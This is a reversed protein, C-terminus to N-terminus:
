QRQFRRHAHGGLRPRHLRQYHLRRFRGHRARRWAGHHQPRRLRQLEGSRQRLPGLRDKVVAALACARLCVRELDGRARATRAGPRRSRFLESGDGARQRRQQHPISQCQNQPRLQRNGVGRPDDHLANRVQRACPLRLFQLPRLLRLGAARRHAYRVARTSSLAPFAIGAATDYPHYGLKKCAEAFLKMRASHRLPPLPFGRKRPGAFPNAGAEGSIGFEWEFNEYYPELDDYSLPWDIIDYGTLDAHAREANGSEIENTYLKFDGPMYRSSQGTWHLLAGGLVNLPSTRYQLRTKEGAKNRTTTPEHRVWESNNRVFSFVFRIARRM